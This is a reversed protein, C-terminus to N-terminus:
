APPRHRPCYHRFGGKEGPAPEIRSWRARELLLLLPEIRDAALLGLDYAPGIVHDTCGPADCTAILYDRIM